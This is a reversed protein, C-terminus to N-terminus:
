REVFSYAFDGNANQYVMLYKGELLSPENAAATLASYLVSIKEPLNIDADVIQYEFGSRDVLRLCTRWIYNTESVQEPRYFIEFQEFQSKVYSIDRNNQEFATLVSTSITQMKDAFYSSQSSGLTLFQGTEASSLNLNLKTAFYQGTQENYDIGEFEFSVLSEDPSNSISLIKLEEDLVYYKGNSEISFLEEREACHIVFKDPIQTEINVIKLYPFEKELESVIKDKNIFLVSGGYSLTEQKIQQAQETTINLTETKFSLEVSKLSFLTFMLIIIVVIITLIVSSIILAKKHKKVFEM